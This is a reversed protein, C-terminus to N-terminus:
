GRWNRWRTMARVMATRTPAGGLRHLITEIGIITTRWRVEYDTAADHGDGHKSLRARAREPGWASFM